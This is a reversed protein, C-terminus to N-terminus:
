SPTIETSSSNNRKDNMFDLSIDRINLNGLSTSKGEPVVDAYSRSPQHLSANEPSKIHLEYKQYSRESILEKKIKRKRIEHRNDTIFEKTIQKKNRDTLFEKEESNIRM